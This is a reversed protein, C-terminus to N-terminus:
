CGGRKTAKKKRKARKEAMGVEKKLRQGQKNLIRKTPAGKSGPKRVREGSCAKIRKRKARFIRGYDQVNVKGKKSHKPM